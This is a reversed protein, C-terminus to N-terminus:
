RGGVLRATISRVIRLRGPRPHGALVELDAAGLADLAAQGGGVYGAVALRASGSLTGVLRAGHSLLAQTRSVEFALLRRLAPSVHDASLDADTVGYRQMDEAPLYVRDNGFDEAIDQWHEILQLATCVEDSLVLREPTAKDFLSLVLHGVPNASLTCYDVLQDYTDYRRVVQDRRNAEVLRHFPELPLQREAVTAALRQLVALRPPTDGVLRDIDDDIADLLADRDGPAEDGADDVLRAFGYLAQLHRRWRAPVLRSAVPFNEQGIKVDITALTALADLWDGEVPRVATDPGPPGLDGRAADM